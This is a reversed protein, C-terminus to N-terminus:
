LLVSRSWPKSSFLGMFDGFSLLKAGCQPDTSTAHKFLAARAMQGLDGPLTLRHADFSAVSIPSMLKGVTVRLSVSSFWWSLSM